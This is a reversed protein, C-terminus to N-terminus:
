KRLVGVIDSERLVLYEEGAVEVLTGSYKGYLVNDGPHVAMVSLMGGDLWRGPGVAVVEGEQPAEQAQVPVYLGGPTKEEKEQSPRVVVRDGLPELPFDANSVTM